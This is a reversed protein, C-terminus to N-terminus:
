EIEIEMVLPHLSRDMAAGAQLTPRTIIQIADYATDKFPKSGKSSERAFPLGRKLRRYFEPNDRVVSLQPTHAPLDAAQIERFGRRIEGRLREGFFCGGQSSKIPM